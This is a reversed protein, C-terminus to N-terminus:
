KGEELLLAKFFIFFTYFDMKSVKFAMGQGQHAKLTEPINVQSSDLCIETTCIYVASQVSGCVSYEHEKSKRQRMGAM